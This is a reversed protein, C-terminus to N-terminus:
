EKDTPESQAVSQRQRNLEDSRRIIRIITIIRDLMARQLGRIEYQGDFPSDMESGALRSAPVLRDDSLSKANICANSSSAPKESRFCALVCSSEGASGLNLKAAEEVPM